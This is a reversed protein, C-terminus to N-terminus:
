AIDAFYSQTKSFYFIGALTILFGSTIGISLIVPDPPFGTL